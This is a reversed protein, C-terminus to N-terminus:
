AQALDILVAHTGAFALFAGGFAFALMFLLTGAILSLTLLLALVVAFILNRKLFVAGNRLAQWVRPERQEFLFPLAFFQLLLWSALLTLYFGQVFSAMTTTGLLPEVLYYDGTLVGIILLNLFTWRWGPGWYQRIAHLFDRENVMESHAVRHAYYFLALVAPPGPIVLILALWFLLQIVLITWLEQWTDRFAAGLVKFAMKIQQTV